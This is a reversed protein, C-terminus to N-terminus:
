VESGFLEGVSVMQNPSSDMVRVVEAALAATVAPPTRPDQIASLAALTRAPAPPFARFGARVRRVATAPDLEALSAWGPESGRVMADPVPLRVMPPTRVELGLAAWVQATTATSGARARCLARVRARFVPAGLEMRATRFLDAHQVPGAVEALGATRAEAPFPLAALAGASRREELYADGVRGLLAECALQGLLEALGEFVGVDSWGRPSVLNGLWQHAVEHALVAVRRARSVEDRAGLLRESILVCGPHEMALWPPDPLLVQTYRPSCLQSSDGLWATVWRLVHRSDALLTAVDDDANLTRRLLLRVPGDTIRRWPGAALGIQHGALTIRSAFRRTQEGCSDVPHGTAVATGGAGTVDITTFMRDDPGGEAALFGAAGGLAGSAVVYALGDVPDVWRSLGHARSAYPVRAAVVVRAGAGVGELRLADGAVHWGEIKSTEIEDVIGPLHLTQRDRASAMVLTTTTLADQERLALRLSRM